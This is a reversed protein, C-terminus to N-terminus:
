YINCGAEYMDNICDQAWLSDFCKKADFIQIECPEEKRKIVPNIIANLVFLNVCINREKRAGVNADTLNSNIVTYVNHYILRDLISRLVTSRFFGRYHM